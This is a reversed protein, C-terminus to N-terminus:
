SSGGGAREGAILCRVYVIQGAHYLRHEHLMALVAEAPVRKQSYSSVQRELDADQMRELQAMVARQGAELLARAAGWDGGADQFRRTLIEWDLEGAGFAHDLQILEDGGLHFVIERISGRSWPFGRYRTPQWCAEEESIQRLAVRLSHWRSGDWAEQFRRQWWIVRRRTM